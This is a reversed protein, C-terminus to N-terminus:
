FRGSLGLGGSAAGISVNNFGNDDFFEEYESTGRVNTWFELSVSSWNYGLGGGFMGGSFREELNGAEWRDSYYGLSGYILFGETALGTGARVSFETALVDFDSADDHSQFGVLGKLGVNDNFAGGGYIAFGNFQDDSYNALNNTLVTSFSAAGVHWLKEEEASAYTALLSLVAISIIRM